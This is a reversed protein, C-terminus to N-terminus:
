LQPQIILSLTFKKLKMFPYYWQFKLTNSRYFYDLDDFLFNHENGQTVELGIASPFRLSIASKQGFTVCSIGVFILSAFLKIRM